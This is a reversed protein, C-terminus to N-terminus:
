SFFNEGYLDVQPNTLVTIDGRVKVCCAL